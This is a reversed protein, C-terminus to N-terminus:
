YPAYDLVFCGARFASSGKRCPPARCSAKGRVNTNRWLADGGRAWLMLQAVVDGVAALVASTVCKTRLPNTELAEAYVALLEEM